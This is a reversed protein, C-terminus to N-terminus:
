KFAIGSRFNKCGRDYLAVRLEERKVGVGRGAPELELIISLRTM